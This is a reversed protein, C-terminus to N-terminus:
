ALGGAVPLTVAFGDGDPMAELAGDHAEIIARALSVGVATRAEARPQPEEAAPALIEIRVAGPATWTLVALVGDSAKLAAHMLSALAWELQAEDALLRDEAADLRLEIDASASREVRESAERLLAHLSTERFQPEGPTLAARLRRLTESARAIQAGAKDMAQDLAPAAGSKASAMLRAASLYNGAAALPQNLDHALTAGFDALWDLVAQPDLLTPTEDRASM